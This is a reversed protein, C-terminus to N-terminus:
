QAGGELLRVLGIIERRRPFVQELMLAMRLHYIAKSRNQFEYWYIQGLNVHALAHYPNVKLESEFAELAKGFQKQAVYAVGLLHHVNPFAPYAELFKRYAEISKDYQGSELYIGGLSYYAMHLSPDIELSKKGMDLAQNFDGMKQYLISLNYYAKAYNPDLHIAKQTFELAEDYIGLKIYAYGVNMNPRAKQPSKKVCDLMLDVESKWLQNRSYTALSLIGILVFWFIIEILHPKVKGVPNIRRKFEGIGRILLLGFLVFPGVSPLYLRHEYVMELPFVSSEIVLNGFYWLIFFSLVPRKKAVWFSYGILGAIIFISLITTPPDFITKSIQFDYDLNLRSPHPYIL